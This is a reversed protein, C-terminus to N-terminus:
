NVAAYSYVCWMIRGCGWHLHVFLILMSVTTYVHMLMLLCAYDQRSLYYQMIGYRGPGSFSGAAWLLYVRLSGWSNSGLMPEVQSIIGYLSPVALISLNMISDNSLYSCRCACSAHEVRNSLLNIATMHDVYLYFIQKDVRRVTRVGKQSNFVKCRLHQSTNALWHVLM